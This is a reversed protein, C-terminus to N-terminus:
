VGPRARVVANRRACPDARAPAEFTGREPWCAWVFRRWRGAPGLVDREATRVVADNREDRSRARDRSSRSAAVAAFPARGRLERLPSWPPPARRPQGAQCRHCPLPPAAARTCYCRLRGIPLLLLLPWREDGQSGGRNCCCHREGLSGEEVATACCRSCPLPSPSRRQRCGCHGASTLETKTTIPGRGALLVARFLFLKFM